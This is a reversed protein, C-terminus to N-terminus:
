SPGAAAEDIVDKYVRTMSRAISPWELEGGELAAVGARLRDSLGDERLARVIADALAPADGPPVLLGTQGDQVYESLGGVASAIVPRGLAYSTLIVGSQTADIYPCVTVSAQQVLTTLRDNDLYEPAVRLRGGNPLEPPPPLRYGPVPQGAVDVELGAVRMAVSPLAEYLIRIGKYDSLRGFLVIRRDGPVDRSTSWAQYFRYIGLPVVSVHRRDLGHQEVFPELLAASHLVFRAIRPFLLRRAIAKRRLEEGPHPHPDHVSLVIPMPRRWVHTRLGLVLRPSVDPDDIHLIDPALQEIFQIADHTVRFSGPHVARRRGHVVLTFSALDRWYARAQDPFTAALIPDAPHLGPALALPKLDFAASRWSEPAVELMLHVEATRSLERALSLSSELFAPHSYLVIRLRRVGGPGDRYPRVLAGGPKCFPLIYRDRPWRWSLVGEVGRDVDRDVSALPTFTIPKSDEGRRAARRVTGAM